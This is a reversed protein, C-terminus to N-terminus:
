QGQRSMADGRPTEVLSRLEGGFEERSACREAAAVIAESSEGAALLRAHAAALRWLLARDGEDDCVWARLRALGDPSGVVEVSRAEQQWWLNFLSFGAQGDAGVTERLHRAWLEALGAALGRGEAEVQRPCDRDFTDQYWVQWEAEPDPDLDTLLRADLTM